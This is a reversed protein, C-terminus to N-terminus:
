FPEQHQLYIIQPQQPRFMNYICYLLCFFVVIVVIIAIVLVYNPMNQTKTNTDTIQDIESEIKTKLLNLLEVDINSVDDFNENSKTKALLYYNDHIYIAVIIVILCMTFENKNM